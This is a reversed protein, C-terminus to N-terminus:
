LRYRHAILHQLRRAHRLAERLIRRDLAGLSAPPLRNGLPAGERLQRQHLRMRLLQLYHFAESCSHAEDEGLVGHEALQRYRETTSPPSIGHALALLRAGDVLPALAETKLDLTERNGWEAGLLERLGGGPPRHSLATQAMLRQFAPDDAVMALVRRLLGALGDADGWLVRADFFITAKLLNGPDPDRLIAAYRRQWEDLSLCLEPNGAMINGQCLVLGCRDLAQNIDAAVPLLLARKREADAPGDAEFILGNDQDTFLTQEGRAESGFSLWSFRAPPHGRAQLVLEIARHTTHDNLQTMVRMLQAADAGHAMMGSVVRVVQERWGALAEICDAHRLGRAVQVLSLRQLAFLDRESIVGELRGDNVICMHGVRHQTMLLAADFARASPPLHLPDRTMVEHIPRALDVHEAAVERRLDRMTFIGTLRGEDVIAVSGVQKDHMHRVAQRLPTRPGCTVPDRSIFGALEMDFAAPEGVDDSAHARAQRHLRGLLSSVGRLAFARLPESQQLLRAFDAADVELCFTDREARYESRTPREGVLAAIPFGDGPGLVLPPESAASGDGNGPRRGIVAGQRILYWHAAVGEAPRTIVAGAPFFRLRAHEVLHLLHPPEMQDFPPFQNLFHLIGQTNQAVATRGAEKLTESM